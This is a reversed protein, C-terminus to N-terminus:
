GLVYELVDRKLPILLQQGTFLVAPFPLENSVLIAWQFSSDGYFLSALGQVTDTSTVIHTNYNLFVPCVPLVMIGADPYLMKPVTSYRSDKFMKTQQM